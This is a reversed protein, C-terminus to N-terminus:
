RDVIKFSKYSAVSGLGSGHGLVWKTLVTDDEEGEKAMLGMAYSCRAAYIPRLHYPSFKGTFRGGGVSPMPVGAEYIPTLIDDIWERSKELSRQLISRVVSEGVDTKVFWSRGDCLERLRATAQIMDEASTGILPIDLPISFGAIKEKEAPKCNGEFKMWEDAWEPNPFPTSTLDFNIKYEPEYRNPFMWERQMPRNVKSFRGKFVIESFPRRGTFFGISLILRSIQDTDSVNQVTMWDDFLEALLNWTTLPLVVRKQTREAVMGGYKRVTDSRLARLENPLTLEDKSGISFTFYRMRATAPTMGVSAGISKWFYPMVGQLMTSVALEGARTRKYLNGVFGLIVSQIEADDQLEEVRLAVAEIERQHAAAVRGM